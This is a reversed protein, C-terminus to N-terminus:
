FEAWTKGLTLIVHLVFRNADVVASSLDPVSGSGPFFLVPELLSSVGVDFFVIASISSSSRIFISPLDPSPPSAPMSNSSPLGVAIFLPTLFLINRNIYSHM